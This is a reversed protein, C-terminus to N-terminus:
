QCTGRTFVVTARKGHEMPVDVPSADVEPLTIRWRIAQALGDWAFGGGAWTRAYDQWGDWDSPSIRVLVNRIGNGQEDVVFGRIQILPHDIDVMETVEGTFCRSPTPTPWPRSTPTATPTHTSTATATPLPTPSHTSTPAATATATSTVTPTPSPTPMLASRVIPCVVALAVVCAVTFSGIGIGVGAILITRASPLSAPIDAGSRLRAAAMALTRTALQWQPPATPAQEVDSLMEGVNQYREEPEKRLSRLIADDLPKSVRPNVEHPPQPQENLIQWRYGLITESPFPLQGTVMQYLVVGLSFLDSRADVKERRVQEPSSYGLTGLAAEPAAEESGEAAAQAIGFDSLYATGSTDLLINNPNIDLHIVGQNHAHELASAVQRFIPVSEDIRLPGQAEVLREKLSQGAVYAMAFYHHGDETGVDYVRVINPHQLRAARRAELHFRGVAAEREALHSALVKLAVYKELSPDWAKYVTSMSTRGIEERIEFRGLTQGTLRDVQDPRRTVM